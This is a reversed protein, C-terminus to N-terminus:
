NQNWQLIMLQALQDGSGAQNEVFRRLKLLRQKAEAHGSEAAVQYWKHAQVFNPKTVPAGTEEPTAPDYLRALRYAAEIHGKRALYFYLLYADDSAAQAEFRRAQEYVDDLREEGGTRQRLFSRADMNQPPAAPVPSPPIEKVGGAAPRPIEALVVSHEESTPASNGDGISVSEMEVSALELPEGPPEDPVFDAASFDIQGSYSICDESNCNDAREAVPHTTHQADSNITALYTLVFVGLVSLAALLPRDTALQFLTRQGSLQRLFSEPSATDPRNETAPRAPPKTIRTRADSDVVIGDASIQPMRLKMGRRLTNRCIRDIEGPVGLSSSAIKDLAESTFLDSGTYGAQILRHQIYARSEETSLRDLEFCAISSIGPPKPNFKPLRFRFEPQSALLIQVSASEPNGHSSLLLINKLLVPSVFDIDDLVLVLHLGRRDLLYQNLVEMKEITGGDEYSLELQKALNDLIEAFNHSRARLPIFETDALMGAELERLMISKGYGDEGTLLATGRRSQIQACLGEHVSIWHPSKFLFDDDWESGFPDKKFGFYNSYM